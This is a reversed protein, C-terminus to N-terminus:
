NPQWDHLGGKANPCGLVKPRQKLYASVGCSKCRFVTQAFDGLRLWSHHGHKESYGCNPHYATYVVKNCKQCIFAKNGVRGINGWIHHPGKSCGLSSPRAEAAVVESCKTCMYVNRNDAASVLIPVLLALVFVFFLKTKM